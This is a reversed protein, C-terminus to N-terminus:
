DAPTLYVVRRAACGWRHFVQGDISGYQRPCGTGGGPEAIGRKGTLPDAPDRARATGDIRFGDFGPLPGFAGKAMSMRTVGPEDPHTWYVDEDTAYLSLGGPGAGPVVGVLEREGGTVPARLVSFGRAPYRGGAVWV